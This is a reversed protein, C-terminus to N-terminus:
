FLNKLSISHHVLEESWHNKKLGLTTIVALFVQKPKKLQGQFTELKRILNMACNKDIVFPHISYKIECLTIANDSRELLLDIQAGQANEDAKPLYRWPSALCATSQLHLAEIIKNVHKFCINEFTYGSWSIWAPMKSLM